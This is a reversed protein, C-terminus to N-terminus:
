RKNSKMYIFDYMIYDKTDQKKGEVYHKQAKDMYSYINTKLIASYYERVGILIYFM